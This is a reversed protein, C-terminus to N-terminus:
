CRRGIVSVGDVLNGYGAPGAHAVSTLAIRSLFRGPPVWYRGRIVIWNRDNAWQVRVVTGNIAVRTRDWNLAANFDRAKLAVSWFLWTRPVTRFGQYITNFNGVANIEAHQRGQYPSGLLRWLEVQGDFSRWTLGPTGNGFHQWQGGHAFVFPQEFGGNRLLQVNPCQRSVEAAVEAPGSTASAPTTTGALAIGAITLAGVAGAITRSLRSRRPATEGAAPHGRTTTTPEM